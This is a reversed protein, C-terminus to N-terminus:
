PAQVQRGVSITPVRALRSNAAGTASCVRPRTQVPPRPVPVKAPFEARGHNVAVPYSVSKTSHRPLLLPLFCEERPSRKRERKQGMGLVQRPQCIECSKSTSNSIAIAWERCALQTIEAEANLSPSEHTNRLAIRGVDWTKLGAVNARKSTENGGRGKDVPHRQSVCAHDLPINVGLSHAPRETQRKPSGFRISSSLM